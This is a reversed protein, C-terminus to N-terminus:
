ADHLLSSQDINILDVGCMHEHHARPDTVPDRGVTRSQALGNQRHEGLSGFIANNICCVQLGEGGMGNRIGRREPLMEALYCDLSIGAIVLFVFHSDAASRSWDPIM